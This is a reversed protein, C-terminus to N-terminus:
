FRVAVMRGIPLALVAPFSGNLKVLFIVNTRGHEGRHSTIFTFDNLSGRGM